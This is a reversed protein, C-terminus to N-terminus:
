YAAVLGSLRGERDALLLEDFGGIPQGEIIIQPFTVMGTHRSLEARGDPDKALNVEEYVIKRRQLLAKASVCRSCHETTYVTVTRM